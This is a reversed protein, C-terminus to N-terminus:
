LLSFVLLIVIFFPLLLSLAYIAFLAFVIGFLVKTPKDRHTLISAESSVKIKQKTGDPNIITFTKKM